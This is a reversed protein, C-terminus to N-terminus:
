TYYLGKVNDDVTATRHRRVGFIGTGLIYHSFPLISFLTYFLLPQGPLLRALFLKCVEQVAGNEM